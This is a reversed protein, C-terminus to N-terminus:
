DGGRKEYTKLLMWEYDEKFIIMQQECLDCCTDKDEDIVDAGCIFCPKTSYTDEYDPVYKPM